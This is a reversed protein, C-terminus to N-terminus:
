SLTFLLFLPLYIHRQQMCSLSMVNRDACIELYLFYSLMISVIYEKRKKM